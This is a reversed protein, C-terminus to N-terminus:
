YILLNLIIKLSDINLVIIDHIGNEFPEDSHKSLRTLIDFFQEKNM